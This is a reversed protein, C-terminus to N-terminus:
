LALRGPSKPARRTPDNSEVTGRVKELFSELWRVAVHTSHQEGVHHGFEVDRRPGGLANTSDLGGACACPSTTFLFNIRRIMFSCPNSPRSALFISMSIQDVNGSVFIEDLTTEGRCRRIRLPQTVDRLVFRSFAGKVTPYHQMQIRTADDPPGEIAAILRDEHIVRQGHRCVRAVRRARCNQVSVVSTSTLERQSRESM